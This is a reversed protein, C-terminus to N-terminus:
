NDEATAFNKDNKAISERLIHIIEKQSCRYQLSLERVNEGNYASIISKNHKDIHKRHTDEKSIGSASLSDDFIDYFSRGLGGVKQSSTEKDSYISYFERGLGQKVQMESQKKDVKNKWFLCM